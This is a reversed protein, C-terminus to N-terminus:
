AFVPLIVLLQQKLFVRFNLIEFRLELSEPDSPSRAHVDLETLYTNRGKMDVAKKAIHAGRKYQEQGQEIKQYRSM